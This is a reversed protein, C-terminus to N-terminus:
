PTRRKTSTESANYRAGWRSGAPPVARAIQDFVDRGSGASFAQRGSLCEYLVLGASFLDSRADLLAGRVQEPSM